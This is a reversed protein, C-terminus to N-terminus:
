RHPRVPKGLEMEAVNWEFVRGTRKEVAFWGMNTSCIGACRRNSHLALVYFGKRRDAAGITDCFAVVSVLFHEVASVRTKVRECAAKATRVPAAELPATPTFFRMALLMAALNAFGTLSRAM